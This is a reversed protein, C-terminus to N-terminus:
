MGEGADDAGPEIGTGDCHSCRWIEGDECDEGVGDCVTCASLECWLAYGEPDELPSPCDDPLDNM